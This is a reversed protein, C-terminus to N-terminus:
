EGTLEVHVRIMFVACETSVDIFKNQGYYVAASLFKIVYRRFSDHIRSIALM